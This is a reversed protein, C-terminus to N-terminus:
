VDLRTSNATRQEVSLSFHILHHVITFSSSLFSDYQASVVFSSILLGSSSYIAIVPKGIGKLVTRGPKTRDRVAAIPGGFRAPVVIVNDIDIERHWQM